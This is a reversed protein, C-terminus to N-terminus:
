SNLILGSTQQKNENENSKGEGFIRSSNAKDLYEKPVKGCRSCVYVPIPVIEDRGTMTIIQSVKKLVAGEVFTKCGCECEINPSDIIAGMNLTPQDM